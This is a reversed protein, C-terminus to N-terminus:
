TLSFYLHCKFSQKFLQIFGFSDTEYEGYKDIYSDIDKSYGQQFNVTDICFYNLSKFFLFSLPSYINAFMQVFQHPRVHSGYWYQITIPCGSDTGLRYFWLGVTLPVHFSPSPFEEKEFYQKMGRHHIRFAFSTCLRFSAVTSM